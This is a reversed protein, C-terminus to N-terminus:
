TLSLIQPDLKRQLDREVLLLTCYFPCGQVVYNGTNCEGLNAQTVESLKKAFKLIEKVKVNYHFQISKYCRVPECPLLMPPRPFFVSQTLTPDFYRVTLRNIM